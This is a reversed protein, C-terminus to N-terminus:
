SQLAKALEYRTQAVCQEFAGLSRRLMAVQSAKELARARERRERSLNAVERPLRGSRKKQVIKSQAASPLALIAASTQVPRSM